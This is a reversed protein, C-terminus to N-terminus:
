KEPSKQTKHDPKIRNFVDLITFGVGFTRITIIYINDVKRGFIVIKYDEYNFYLSINILQYLIFFYVKEQLYIHSEQVNFILLEKINKNSNSITTIIDTFTKLTNTGRAHNVKQNM